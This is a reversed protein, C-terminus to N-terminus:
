ACIRANWQGLRSNESTNVPGMEARSTVILRTSAPGASDRVLRSLRDTCEVADELVVDDLVLCFGGEGLGAIRSGISAELDAAKTQMLLSAASVDAGDLLVKLARLVQEYNLSQGNAPLFLACDLGWFRTLQAALVTKGYGSPASLLVAQPSFAAAARLLRPREIVKGLVPYGHKPGADETQM